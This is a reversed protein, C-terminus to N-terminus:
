YPVVRHDGHVHHHDRDDHHRVHAHGDDGDCRRDLGCGRNFSQHRRRIFVTLLRLLITPPSEEFRRELSDADRM